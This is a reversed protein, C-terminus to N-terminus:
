ARPEPVAAEELVPGRGAAPAPEGLRLHAPVFKRALSKYLRPREKSLYELFQRPERFTLGGDPMNVDCSTNDFERCIHPREPYIGCLRDDALNRCRTEFLVSWEGAGDRYVHVRDHYLYWLVDTAHRGTTPANIGVAVYTCCEACSTCPVLEAPPSPVLPLPVKKSM